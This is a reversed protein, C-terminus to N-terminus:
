KRNSPPPGRRSSPPILSRTSPPAAAPAMLADWLLGPMCFIATVDGFRIEDGSDVTVPSARPVEIGNMQTPNTAKGGALLFRDDEDKEFWAQFKSVSHHRLVIDNTRARGVSIRELFVNSAAARKHLPVAIHVTRALRRALEPGSFQSRAIRSALLFSEVSAPISGVVTDFGMSPEPQRGGMTSADELAAELTIAFDSHPDDVRVLLFGTGITSEFVVRNTTRLLNVMEVPKLNQAARPDV